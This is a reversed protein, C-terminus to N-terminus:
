ATMMSTLESRKKDIELDPSFLVGLFKLLDETWRAVVNNSLMSKSRGASKDQNVMAGAVVEYRKIANEMCPLQEEHSVVISIDDAYAISGRGYWLDHTM